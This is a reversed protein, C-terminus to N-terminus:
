RKREANCDPTVYGDIVGRVYVYQKTLTKLWLWVYKYQAGNEIKWFCTDIITSDAISAVGVDRVCLSDYFASATTFQAGTSVPHDAFPSWFAIARLDTPKARTADGTKGLAMLSVCVKVSTGANAGPEISDIGITSTYSPLVIPGIWKGTTATASDIKVSFSEGIGVALTTSAMFTLAILILIFYRM